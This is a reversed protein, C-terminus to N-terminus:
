CVNSLSRYCSGQFCFIACQRQALAECSVIFFRQSFPFIHLTNHAQIRPKIGIKQLLEYIMMRGKPTWKMRYADAHIGTRDNYGHAEKVVYGKGEYDPHLYWSGYAKYQVDLCELLENLKINVNLM